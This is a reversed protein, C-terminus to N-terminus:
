STLLPKVLCGSVVETEYQKLQSGVQSTIMVGPPSIKEEIEAETVFVSNTLWNKNQALHESILWNVLKTLPPTPKSNTAAKLPLDKKTKIQSQITEFLEAKLKAQIEKMKGSSQFWDRVKEELEEKAIEREM